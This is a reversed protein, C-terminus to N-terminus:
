KEASLAQKLLLVAFQVAHELVSALESGFFRLALPTQLWTPGKIAANSAMHTGKSAM